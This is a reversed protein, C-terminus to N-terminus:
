KLTIVLMAQVLEVVVCSEERPNINNKKKHAVTTMTSIKTDKRRVNKVTSPMMMKGGREEVGEKNNSHGDEDKLDGMRLVRGVEDRYM